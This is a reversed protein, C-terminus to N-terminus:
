HTPAWLIQDEKSAARASEINIKAKPFEKQLHAVASAPYNKGALMIVYLPVNKLQEIGAPTVATYRLDLYILKKMSTLYKLARDNLKPNNRAQLLTISTCGALHKM